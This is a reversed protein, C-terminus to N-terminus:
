HNHSNNPDADWAETLTTAGKRLQNAYGPGKQQCVMDYLVDGRGADADARVVYMFGVDGATVRNGGGRIERVLNTLVAKRRDAAALGLVLPM